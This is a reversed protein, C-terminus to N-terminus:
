PVPKFLRGFRPIGLLDGEDKEWSFYILIAKGVVHDEPVFGWFRSDESNDRNDGMVFYYNQAFTYTTVAAGDVLFTGGQGRGTVHGEYRRIVPEYVPWNEETLPITEGAKPIWVPGYNDPTYGRGPPYMLESYGADPPAIAPEVREVWPWSAIERAAATTANVQAVASNQPDVVGAPDVGLEELRTRSLRVNPSSKYVLWRQQMGEMLPVPEGDVHVVKDQVSLTEGPLGMVRKIYHTKREIPAEEVPYNFVIADGRKVESFGPLRTWPLELGGIYIQTFPIGLTMPTRTGYHLKSVFLFDGVLLSREMSPTPIKFLDFFFTRVILMVVAAFVLADLWERLKSKQSPAKRARGNTGAPEARSGARTKRRETRTTPNAM